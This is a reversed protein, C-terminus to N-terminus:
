LYKLTGLSLFFRPLPTATACVAPPCLMQRVEIEVGIANIGFFCMAVGMTVIPTAWKFWHVIIIPVTYVFVVLLVNLMQVYPFPMPTTRIKMASAWAIVLGGINRDMQMMDVDATRGQENSKALVAGLKAAVIPVLEKEKENQLQQKEEEHLCSYDFKMDHGTSQDIIICFLVMLLRRAEARLWKGETDAGQMYSTIQRILERSHRVFMSVVGRGEWYRSYSIQSRFVLLFTVPVTMLRHATAPLIANGEYDKVWDFEYYFYCLLGLLGSVLIYHWTKRLVSGKCHFVVGVFSRPQYKNRVAM